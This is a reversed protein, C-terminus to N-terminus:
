YPKDFAFAGAGTAILVLSILALLFYATRGAPFIIPYRKTWVWAKLAALCGLMAAVQTYFGTALALALLATFVVSFWAIAIGPKGIIPFPESAVNTRHQYLHYALLAFAAAAGLRLVFPVFMPGLFLVQPFLTEM